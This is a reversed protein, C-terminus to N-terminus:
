RTADYIAEVVAIALAIAFLYFMANPPFVGLFRISSDLEEAGCSPCTVSRFKRYQTQWGDFPYLLYRM